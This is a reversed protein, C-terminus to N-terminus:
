PGFRAWFHQVSISSKDKQLQIDVFIRVIKALKGSVMIGNKHFVNTMVTAVSSRLVSSPNKMRKSVLIKTGSM